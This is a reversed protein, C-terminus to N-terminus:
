DKILRVSFGTTKSGPGRGSDNNLYYLGYAYANASSSETSCWWFVHSGMNYYPGDNGRYGGSLGTFGSSNTAGTNPSLWHATGTEKMKGGAGILGGTYNSGYVRDM